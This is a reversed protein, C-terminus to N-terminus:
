PCLYRPLNNLSNTRKTSTTPPKELAVESYAVKSAKELNPEVGPLEGSYHNILNELVSPELTHTTPKPHSSSSSEHNGSVPVALEGLNEADTPISQLPEIMPPQFPHDAPLRACVNFRMQALIMYEKKFVQICLSLFIMMQSKRTSPLHTASQHWLKPAMPAMAQMEV